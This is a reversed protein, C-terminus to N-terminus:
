ALRSDAAAFDMERRTDKTDYELHIHDPEVVVDFDEGLMEKILYAWESVEASNLDRIRLDVANGTYHLSRAAHHGDAASTIWTDGTPRVAHAAVVALV